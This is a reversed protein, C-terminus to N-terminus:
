SMKSPVFSVANGYHTPLYTLFSKDVSIYNCRPEAKKIHKHQVVLGIYVIQRTFGGSFSTWIVLMFREQELNFEWFRNGATLAFVTSEQFLM